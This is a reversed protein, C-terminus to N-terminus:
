SHTTAPTDALADRLARALAERRYPKTLLPVGAPPRADRNNGPFGSTLVIKVKPWRERATRALDYGDLKGPMVVDAFLLDIRERGELAAIAAAVNEAELTRYGLKGLQMVVVRRLAPNDEVVLITEGGAARTEPSAVVAGPTAAAATPYRPLYLRFTTGRKPESYVNVHGGSQKIFGFVMSLGLGTGEGHPKTTFFPDFIRAMDQPAIGEGTDIVAIMAYDGPSVDDHASAYDEDLVTNQTAFTLHGGTPMADRANTALNTLAAELQAPDAIVPWVDDALDLVVGIQEGLTRSLLRAIGRVLDNVDIPRPQLPQRRAFAL